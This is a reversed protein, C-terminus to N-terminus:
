VFCSLTFYYLGKELRYLGREVLDAAEELRGHKNLIDSQICACHTIYHYLSMGVNGSEAVSLALIKSLSCEIM